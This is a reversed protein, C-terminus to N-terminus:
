KGKLWQSCLYDEGIHALYEQYTGHYDKLGKETLAIIRTAIKSVFHRDHSVFILTGPYAKLADALAERSELDLHNTPEDLVLVNAKELLIQGLMLRCAEGGSLVNLRKEMNEKSFLVQGLTKRVQPMSEGSVASALWDLVTDNGHIVEHLDQSFYSTSVEHGWEFSGEDASIKGLLIKLLTSKGIGNHGILAVKEGRQVSFSFDHLVKKPGFSKSIGKVGIVKKGSPRKQTFRLAPAQRSSVKIEPLEIREIMKERSMAQRAKSSTAKFRDVYRQKQAIEREASTREKTKQELVQDKQKQFKDYNGVYHQIEGYDIDLMHTALNNLFDYDHSIFLLLGKFDNRLYEELWSISMIDLHNTPEDLLLVDPEEFLAQALLVRLKYGGSLTSLPKTHYAEEIGLGTLLTQALVEATYGDNEAIAEELEGLRYCEKESIDSKALIEDKEQLAEWLKKKGMLVVDLIRAEGYRFQDQRMWGIRHGRPVNIEGNTPLEEGSLVRLLTSKGAGNAGVLGYRNKSKLNISVDDFLHKAGYHLSINQLSIM